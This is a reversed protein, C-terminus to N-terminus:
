NPVDGHSTPRVALPRVRTVLEDLFRDPMSWVVFHGAGEFPVFEKRPANITDFYEKALSAPTREDLTGQFFFIPIKFDPGVSFLDASLMERYVRCTPVVAFGRFLNYVDWLSLTPALLAGQPANRDSECEYKELIRFFVGIKEMGHFPPPGTKKLENAAKTDRAERARDLVYAYSMQQAKLMNSIQGTGVYAYFLDPRLKAMHIGLLSGWSFGLLIIKDRHLYDKLFEALEIGDHSMQEVSMTDVVSPGTTELTKGTGRQDWQVVVFEREWPLLFKTQGIWSGGPGGHLCLLVPNGRDQGRIQVWQNIGGIKVYMAQDIGNLTHIALQRAIIHQAYSRYGLFMCIAVVLIGFSGLVIWKLVRLLM